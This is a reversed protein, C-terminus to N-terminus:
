PTLRDWLHACCLLCLVAGRRAEALHHALASEINKPLCHCPPHWLHCLTPSCHCLAPWFHCHRCIWLSSAMAPGLAFFASSGLTGLAGPSASPKTFLRPWSFFFWHGCSAASPEFGRRHGRVSLRLGGGRGSLRRSTQHDAFIFGLAASFM